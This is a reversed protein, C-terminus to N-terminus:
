YVSLYFSADLIFIVTIPISQCLFDKLNMRCICSALRNQTFLQAAALHRIKKSIKLRAQNADFGTATCM